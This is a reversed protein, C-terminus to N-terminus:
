KLNLVRIESTSIMNINKGATQYGYVYCPTESNVKLVITDLIRTTFGNVANSVVHMSQPDTENGDISILIGRVGTANAEYNIRATVINYGVPLTVNLASLKKMANNGIAVNAGLTKITYSQSARDNNMNIFIYYYIPFRTVKLKKINILLYYIVM